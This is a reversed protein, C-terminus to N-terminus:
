NRGADGHEVYNDDDTVVYTLQNNFPQLVYKHNQCTFIIMYIFILKNNNNNYVLSIKPIIRTIDSRIFVIIITLRAVSAM